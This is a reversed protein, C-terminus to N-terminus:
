ARLKVDEGFFEFREEDTMKNYCIAFLGGDVSTLTWYNDATDKYFANTVVDDWADWYWENEPGERLIDVDEGDVNRWEGIGFEFDEAFIKPVYIGYNDSILNVVGTM